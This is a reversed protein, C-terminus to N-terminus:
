AYRGLTARGLELFAKDDSPPHFLGAQVDRYYRELPLDHTMSSGGVARMAHDVAQKAANTATVKAVILAENLAARQDPHADWQEAARYLAARAAQLALEGEGLRRQVSELTAIPKGLGTPVRQHAFQAAARIAAQGIGVYVASFTLVFWANHMAKAPDPGGVPAMVILADNSVRVDTLILDHSGTGRMGMSDWAPRVTLAPQKHVLFRAITPGEPTEVRAPIIFYDLEPSLSAFTKVGNIVWEAGDQVATTAPLGGHSPSGLEPETACSNVLAGRETIETFLRRALAPPWGRGGGIGGVTQIHMGIALATSGDGMALTEQARVADYLGAGWGGYELPVTLKHYGAARLDAYNEHPFTGAADHQAARAAFLQALDAATQLIQTHPPPTKVSM